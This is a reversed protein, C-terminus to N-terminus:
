IEVPEFTTFVKEPLSNLVKIETIKREGRDGSLLIDGYRKYDQWPLTFNASDQAANKFYAWQKVLHDEKDVWVHYKNEPTHGVNKFKLELIDAEEGSNTTGPGAYTLTVGQDKLKFPMILWYSDNRWINRGIELYKKVSDPHTLEQGNKKVKGEMAHINVIIEMDDNLSRIRVDGTQKDWILHRAGFFNWALYRTNDWNNRGGMAQMVEDAIAIATSDSNQKDFGQVAPNIQAAMGETNKQETVATKKEGSQCGTIVFLAAPILLKFNYFMKFSTLKSISILYILKNTSIPIRMVSIGLINFNIQPLWQHLENSLIASINRYTILM